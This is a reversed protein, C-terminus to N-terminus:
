VSASGWCYQSIFAITRGMLRAAAFESVQQGKIPSVEVVDFGVINRSQALRQIMKLGLYWTLGGPEPTGTGPFVSPDFGDVDITLYVNRSLHGIAEDIWPGETHYDFAHYCHVPRDPQGAEMRERSRIGVQVIPCWENMRAAASAHSFKDDHYAERLDSHADIHFVSLEPWAEWCAKVAGPSVSHEGGVLIPFKGAKVIQQAVPYVQGMTMEEATCKPNFPKLTCVGHRPIHEDRTIEDFLEVQQSAGRIADPGAGTGVGYSVTGEFPASMVVFRAREFAALEPELGFYNDDDTVVLQSVDTTFTKQKAM